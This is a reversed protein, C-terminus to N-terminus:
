EAQDGFCFVACSSLFSAPSNKVPGNDTQRVAASLHRVASTACLALSSTRWPSLYTKAGRFGVNDRVPARPFTSVCLRRRVPTHTSLRQWPLCSCSADFVSHTFKECTWWSQFRIISIFQAKLDFLALSLGFNHSWYLWHTGPIHIKKVLISSTYIVPSCDCCEQRSQLYFFFFFSRLLKVKKDESTSIHFSGLTLAWTCKGM